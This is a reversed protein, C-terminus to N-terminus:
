DTSKSQITNSLHDIEGNLSRLRDDLEGLITILRWTLFQQMQEQSLGAERLPADVEKFFKTLHEKM